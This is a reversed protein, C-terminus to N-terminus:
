LVIEADEVQKLIRIVGKTEVVSLVRMEKFGESFRPHSQVREHSLSVACTKLM